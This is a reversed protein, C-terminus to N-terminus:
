SAIVDIDVAASNLNIGANVQVLAQGTTTDLCYTYSTM